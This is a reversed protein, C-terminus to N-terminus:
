KSTAYNEDLAKKLDVAIRHWLKPSIFSNGDDEPEPTASVQESYYRIAEIIFVQTLAGYTSFSMLKSVFEENTLRNTM